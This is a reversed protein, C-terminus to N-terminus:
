RIEYWLGTENSPEGCIGSKDCAAVRYAYYSGPRVGRDLFRWGKEGQPQLGEGGVPIALYPRYAQPCGPCARSGDATESRLLRFSAAQERDGAVSWALGIGATSAAATLGGVALPRTWQPPVPDGKKGCSAALAAVLFIALLPGLISKGSRM